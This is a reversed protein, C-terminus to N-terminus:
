ITITAVGKDLAEQKVEILTVPIGALLASTAIGSGMTGGGIVGIANVDRPQAKKEPVDAVTSQIGARAHVSLPNDIRVLAVDGVIETIVSIIPQDDM